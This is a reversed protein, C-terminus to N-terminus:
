YTVFLSLSQPPAPCPWAFVDWSPSPPPIGQAWPSRTPGRNIYGQSEWGGLAVWQCLCAHAETQGLPQQPCKGSAREPDPGSVSHIVTVTWLESATRVGDFKCPGALADRQSATKVSACETKNM